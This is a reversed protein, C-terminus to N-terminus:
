FLYYYEYIEPLQDNNMKADFVKWSNIQQLTFQLHCHCRRYFQFAHEEIEISNDKWEIMKFFYYRICLLIELSFKEVSDFLMRKINIPLLLVVVLLIKENDIFFLTCVHFLNLFSQWNLFFTWCDFNLSIRVLEFWNSVIRVSMRTLNRRNKGEGFLFIKIKERKVLWVIAKKKRVVLCTLM